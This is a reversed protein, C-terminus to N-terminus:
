PLPVRNQGPLFSVASRNAQRAAVPMSPDQESRMSQVSLKELQEQQQAHGWSSLGGGGLHMNLTSHAGFSFLCEGACNGSLWLFSM